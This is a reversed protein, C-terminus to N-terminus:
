LITNYEANIASTAILQTMKFLIQLSCLLVKPFHFVLSLWEGGGFCDFVWGLKYHGSYEHPSCPEHVESQFVCFMFM